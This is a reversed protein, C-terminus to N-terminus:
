QVVALQEFPFLMRFLASPVLLLVSLGDSPLRDRGFIWLGIFTAELFFAVIAEMTLPMFM